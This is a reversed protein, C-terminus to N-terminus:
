IVCHLDGESDSIVDVYPKGILYGHVYDIDFDTVMNLAEADAVNIAVIKAMDSRITNILQYLPSRPFGYIMDKVDIKVYNFRQLERVRYYTETQELRSLVFKISYRKGIEEILVRYLEPYRLFQNSEVELMLCNEPLDAADLMASLWPLFEPESLTSLTIKCSLKLSSHKEGSKSLEKLKTITTRLVWRDIVRKAYADDLLKLLSRRPIKNGKLDIAEIRVDYIDKLNVTEDTAIYVWPQYNASVRGDAIAKEIDFERTADKVLEDDNIYALNQINIDGYTCIRKNEFSKAADCLVQALSLLEFDNRRFDELELGTPSIVGVSVSCPYRKPGIVFEEKDLGKYLGNLFRKYTSNEIIVAIYEEKYIYINCNLQHSTLFRYVLDAIHRIYNDQASIGEFKGIEGYAEPNFLFLHNNRTKEDTVLALRRIFNSKDFVISQSTLDQMRARESEKNQVCEKISNTLTKNDFHEKVIYDDIGLKIARVALEESGRATLLITAPMKEPQFRKFWDLGTTGTGFHYDLIIFDIKEWDYDEGPMTDTLPDVQHITIGPFSRYLKLVLLKRYDEDDDIIMAQNM